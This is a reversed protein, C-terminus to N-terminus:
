AAPSGRQSRAAGVLGRFLRSSAPDEMEEPHWQVALLFRHGASEVAEIVGDPSRGSIRLGRAGEKVAQHHFSNVDFRVEDLLQAIRSDPDLEVPHSPSSRERGDRGSHDVATVKQLLLDQYLSGGMAVNLLQQGRCIGLVPLDDQISWRALTLELRDREEEVELNGALPEEGYHAPAVDEGGPLLLGDLRAYVQRLSAEELPPILVPAAGAAALAKIYARNVAYKPRGGPYSV